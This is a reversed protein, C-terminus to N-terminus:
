RGRLNRSIAGRRRGTRRTSRRKRKRRERRAVEVAAAAPRTEIAISERAVPSRRNPAPVRPGGNADGHRYGKTTTTEHGGPDFSAWDTNTLITTTTVVVAPTVIRTRTSQGRIIVTTMAMVVVSIVLAVVSGKTGTTRITVRMAVAVSPAALTATAIVAALVPARTPIADGHRCPSETDAILTTMAVM